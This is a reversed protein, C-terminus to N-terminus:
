PRVVLDWAERVKAATRQPLDPVVLWALGFLLAKVLYSLALVKLTKHTM